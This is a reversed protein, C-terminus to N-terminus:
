RGIVSVICNLRLSIGQCSICCRKVADASGPIATGGGGSEMLVGTIDLLVGSIPRKHWVSM